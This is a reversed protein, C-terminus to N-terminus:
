KKYNRMLKGVGIVLVGIAYLWAYYDDLAAAWGGTQLLLLVGILTVIWATLKAMKVGGKARKKM